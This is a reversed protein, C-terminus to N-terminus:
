RLRDAVNRYERAAETENRSDQNTFGAQALERITTRQEASLEIRNTLSIVVRASIAWGGNAYDDMTEILEAATPSPSEELEKFSKPM